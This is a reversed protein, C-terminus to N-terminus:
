LETLDTTTDWKRSLSASEPFVLGKDLTAAPIKIELHTCKGHGRTGQFPMHVVLVGGPFGSRTQLEFFLPCSGEQSGPLEWRSSLSSFPVPSHNPCSHTHTVKVSATEMLHWRLVSQLPQERPCAHPNRPM